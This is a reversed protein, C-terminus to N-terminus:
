SRPARLALHTGRIGITASPTTLLVAGPRMRAIGGSIYSLTGEFLHLSLGAEDRDPRYVMEDIVMISDPGLSLLTEDDLTLGVAGNAGTMVEDYLRVPMGLTVPLTQPGRRVQVQGELTKIVGIPNEARAPTAGLGLGGLVLVGTLILALAVGASVPTKSRSPQRCSAAPM